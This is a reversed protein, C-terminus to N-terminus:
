GDVFGGDIVVGAIISTRLNVAGNTSYFAIKEWEQRTLLRRIRRREKHIVVGYGRRNPLEAFSGYARMGRFCTSPLYVDCSSLMKKNRTSSPTGGDSLSYISIYESCNKSEAIGLGERDIKSWVQFIASVEVDRGDPYSFSGAKLPSSHALCYGRVRKGAVGKGDSAFLQPLIFGVLDAFVYSHNIFQLALHGRLGFPPNGIVVYKRNCGSKSGEGNEGNEINVTPSWTLYDCEILETYNRDLALPEIDIGVRRTRPLLDFFSGCGASPEIFTYKRLDVGLDNAVRRFIAYCERAVRPRTYFQCKAREDQERVSVGLKRVLAADIGLDKAVSSGGLLRAFDGAYHRPVHGNAFWRRVTNPHLGIARAVVGQDIGSLIEALVELSM